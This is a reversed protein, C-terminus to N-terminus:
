YHIVLTVFIDVMEVGVTNITDDTLRRAMISIDGM